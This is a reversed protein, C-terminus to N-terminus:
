DFCLPRVLTQRCSGTLRVPSWPLEYAPREKIDPVTLLLCQHRGRGGLLLNPIGLQRRGLRLIQSCEVALEVVCHLDFWTEPRPDGSLPFIEFIPRLSDAIELRFHGFESDPSPSGIRLLGGNAPM